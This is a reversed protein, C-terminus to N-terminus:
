RAMASSGAKPLRERLKRWRTYRTRAEPGADDERGLLWFRFWDLAATMSDFRDRPVTTAHPASPFYLIDVPKRMAHLRDFMPSHVELSRPGHAEILVPATVKGLEVDTYQRGGEMYESSGGDIKIAAAVRGPDRILIQDLWYGARSWGAIGV